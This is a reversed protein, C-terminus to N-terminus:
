KIELFESATIIKIHLYHKLKLLHPDGSIILEANGVVATELIDNDDPDEEIVKIIGTTKVVTAIELIIGLFREKQEKTFSFKPYEMVRKLENLQQVSTILEEEGSVCKRFVEKPKGQWGLASILINTDLVVKKKGM